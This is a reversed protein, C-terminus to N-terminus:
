PGGSDPLYLMSSTIFETSSFPRSAHKTAYSIVTAHDLDTPGILQVDSTGTPVIRKWLRGACRAFWAHRDPHLWLVLHYHPHGAKTFEPLAVFSFLDALPMEVFVASRFIRSIVDLSWLRLAAQAEAPTKDAHFGLTVFHSHRVTALMQRLARQISLGTETVRYLNMPAHPYLNM